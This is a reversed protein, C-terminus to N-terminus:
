KKGKLTVLFRNPVLTESRMTNGIKANRNKSTSAQAMFDGNLKIGKLSGGSL